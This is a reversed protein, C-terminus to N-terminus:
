EKVNFSEKPKTVQTLDFKGDLYGFVYKSITEKGYTSPSSVEVLIIDKGMETFFVGVPTTDKESLYVAILDAKPDDRYIFSGAKKLVEKVKRHAAYFNMNYSKKIADPRSEELAKTSIGAFGRAAEKVGACGYIFSIALLILILRKKMSGGIILRKYGAM